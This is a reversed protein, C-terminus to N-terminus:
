TPNSIPHQNTKNQQIPQCCPPNIQISNNSATTAYPVRIAHLTSYNTYYQTGHNYTRYGQLRSRLSQYTCVVSSFATHKTSAFSLKISFEPLRHNVLHSDLRSVVRSCRISYQHIYRRNVLQSCLHNHRKQSSPQRSPQITPQYIRYTRESRM